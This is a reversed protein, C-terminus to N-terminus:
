VEEFKDFLVIRLKDEHDALHSGSGGLVVVGSDEREALRNLCVVVGVAHAPVASGLTMDAFLAGFWM